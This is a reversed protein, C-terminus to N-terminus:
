GKWEGSEYLPRVQISNNMRGVSLRVGRGAGQIITQLLPKVIMIEENRIIATVGNITQYGLSDRLTEPGVKMNHGMLAVTRGEPRGRVTVAKVTLAKVRILEENREVCAIQVARRSKLENCFIGAKIKLQDGKRIVEVVPLRGSVSLQKKIEAKIRISNEVGAYSVTKVEATTKFQYIIGDLHATLRKYTGITKVIKELDVEVRSQSINLILRFYFPEGGYDFWEQVDSDPHLARLATKVAYKTGLKKHVKIGTKILERKAMIPYDYDYWDIHMDHALIDLAKESLEDIRAYIINNQIKRASKKLEQAIAQAAAMMKEDNQLVPPLTRTYDITYIDTDNM